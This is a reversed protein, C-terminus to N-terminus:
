AIQLNYRAVLPLAYTAAMNEIIMDSKRNGTRNRREGLRSQPGDAGAGAGIKEEPHQNMTPETVSGTKFLIM